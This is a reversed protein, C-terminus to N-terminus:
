PQNQSDRESGVTVEERYKRANKVRWHESLTRTAKSLWEVDDRLAEIERAAYYKSHNAQPKGLPRLFKKVTLIPIDHPNFGLVAATQGVTLRAPLRQLRLFSTLEDNLIVTM